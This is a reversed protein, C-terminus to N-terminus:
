GVALPADRGSRVRPDSASARGPAASLAALKGALIELLAELEDGERALNESSLAWVTLESVGSSAAGASCSTWSRRAM